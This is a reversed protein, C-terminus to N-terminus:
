LNVFIITLQLFDLNELNCFIWTKCDITKSFVHKCTGLDYGYGVM